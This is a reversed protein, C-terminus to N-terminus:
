QPAVTSDMKFAGSTNNMEWYSIDQNATLGNPGYQYSNPTSLKVPTNTYYQQKRADWHLEQSELRSGSKLNVVEVSDELFIDNTFENYTGTKATVTSEVRLSDNFFDVHLGNNMVVRPPNSSYRYLLPATLHAKLKGNIGYYYISVNHGVEVGADKKGIAEVESMNNECGAFLLCLLGYILQKKFM